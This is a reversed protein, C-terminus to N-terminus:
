IEPNDALAESLSTKKAITCTLKFCCIRCIRLKLPPWKGTLYRPLGRIEPLSLCWSQMGNSSKYRPSTCPRIIKPQDQTKNCEPASPTSAWAICNPPRRFSLPIGLIMDAGQGIFRGLCGAGDETIAPHIGQLIKEFDTPRSSTFISRFYEEVAAGMRGEDEVWEGASNELGTIFNRKNRQNARCHFYRSNSDGEKLWSNRSRESSAMRDGWSNKVVEECTSDKLWMAEFQFPRGKRYFRKFESYVDMCFKKNELNDEFDISMRKRGSNITNVGIGVGNESIEDKTVMGVERAIRKWAKTFITPRQTPSLSGTLSEAIVAHAMTNSQFDHEARPVQPVEAESITLGVIVNDLRTEHMLESSLKVQAGNSDVQMPTGDGNSWSHKPVYFQQKWPAQRRSKGPVVVVTKRVTRITEARMWEGFEQEEKRLSGKSGLWKACDRESHTVCGCWYCFNSLGEFKIGVWGVLKQGAWLKCCLPLPRSIDLNIRVRLFEGGAGDDEPDAVQLVKGLTKGVSEGTEQSLLYDPVNHIQIWFSSRTYDLSLASEADLARQFVVLSKDYSWPEFELVRELDLCDEFEFLLINDGIDRIKLEGGPKWLPKFTRAVADVNIVMKTLFKGALRHVIFEKQGRVEAGRDEEESFSFRAWMEELGAM